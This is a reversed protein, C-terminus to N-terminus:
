APTVTILGCCPCLPGAIHRREPCAAATVHGASCTWATFGDDYKGPQGCLVDGAHIRFATSTEGEAVLASCTHTDGRCPEKGRESSAPASCYRCFPDSRSEWKRPDCTLVHGAGVGLRAELLYIRRRENEIVRHAAWYRTQASAMRRRSLALEQRLSLSM